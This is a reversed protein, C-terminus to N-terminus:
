AATGSAQEDVLPVDQLEEPKRRIIVVRPAKAAPPPTISAVTAVAEAAPSAPASTAVAVALAAPAAPAEAEGAKRIHLRAGREVDKTVPKFAPIAAVAAPKQAPEFIGADAPFYSTGADTTAVPSLDQEIQDVLRLARTIGANVPAAQPENSFATRAMDALKAFLRGEDSLGSPTGEIAAIERRAAAIAHRARAVLASDASGPRAQDAMVAELKQIAAFIRATEAKRLRSEFESLFWRGRESEQVTQLLDDFKLSQDQVPM